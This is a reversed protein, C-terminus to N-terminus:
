RPPIASADRSVVIEVRRNLQRGQMSDDRAVPHSEGYGQATVHDASIGQALLANRVADARLRSLRLNAVESGVNDTFGEVLVLREPHRKMFDALKEVDRLGEPKIIAQNTDFLLDGITIVLGRETQRANMDRLQAELEASRAQSDSAQMRAAQADARSADAERTRAGLRQQDRQANATIVAQEAARQRAVAQALATQQKALYALHTVQGPEDRRAFAENALSLATNAQSLETAAYQRTQPSDQAVRYDSRAQELLPNGPPVSSCASLTAITASAILGLASLRFRPFHTM